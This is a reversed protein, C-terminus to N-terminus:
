QAPCTEPWAPLPLEESCAPLKWRDGAVIAQMSIDPGVGVEIMMSSCTQEKVDDSM